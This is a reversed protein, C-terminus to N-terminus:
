RNTAKTSTAPKTTAPPATTTTTTAAPEEVAAESADAVKAKRKGAAAARLTNLKEKQEASLIGEIETDRQEQLSKLQAQLVDLQDSYRKQISYIEDRQKETVVQAYYAPLRGKAKKKAKEQGVLTPQMVATTLFALGLAAAVLTRSMSTTM